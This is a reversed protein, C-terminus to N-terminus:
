SWTQKIIQTQVWSQWSSHGQAPNRLKRTEAGENTFHLCDWWTQQASLLLNALGCLTSLITHPSM